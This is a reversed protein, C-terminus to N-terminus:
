WVSPDVEAACEGWLSSQCALWDFSVKVPVLLHGVELLSAKAEASLGQLLPPHFFSFFFTHTPTSLSHLVVLSPSLTHLCSRVELSNAEEWQGLPVASRSSPSTVGALRSLCCRVAVATVELVFRLAVGMLHLRGLCYGDGAHVCEVCPVWVRCDTFVM